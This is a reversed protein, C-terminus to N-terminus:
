NSFKKTRKVGGFINDHTNQVKPCSNQKRKELTTNM